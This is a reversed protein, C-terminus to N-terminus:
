ARRTATGREPARRGDLISVAKVQAYVSQGGVLGLVRLSRRTIRALLRAGDGEEGLGLLVNARGDELLDIERIRAPLVNLITTRSPPDLALSVDGAAIRLRHLSGPVGVPGPVLLAGGDVQLTSLADGADFSGVCASLVTAATAGRAFPLRPDTLADGLPGCSVVRGAELLVVHNALRQVEAVDHTVYLVPISLSRQLSELYPLIEDKTIQDLGALPEDMLLVRPQSLLARGVAVRQREGGSLADPSRDILPGIGLLAVIAEFTLAPSGAVRHARRQAYLLNQRVSLHPLLRDEQFVYGIRRRHVPVDRGAGSDYLAEGDFAIRGRDPRLLGAIANLVSTKGSGSRGFLATV